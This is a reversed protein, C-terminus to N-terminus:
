QPYSAMLSIGCQNKGRIMRIFGSEGWSTGWSNKVSWYQVGNEVGYGTLLVGHDLSTGCTGSFIGKSYFQFGSQDAEIAVSVTGITLGSVLQDEKGSPLDYYHSIPKTIKKTCTSSACKGLKATYPYATEACLSGVSIAYEFCYDMLGGNCGQNGFSQSCDVIEQEAMQSVSGSKIAYATEMAGIASFAYCSGCQGQDKVPAVKGQDRWDFGDANPQVAKLQVTNLERLYPNKQKLLGTHAAVFEEHTQDAFANLAMSWSHGEANHANIMDLNSKFVQYRNYFDAHDYQKTHEAMYNSFAKQYERESFASALAVIALLVFLHKM